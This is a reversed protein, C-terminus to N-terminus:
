TKWSDIVVRKDEKIAEIATDFDPYIKTLCGLVWGSIESVDLGPEIVAYVPMCLNRWAHTIEGITGGTMGRTIYVLVSELEDIASMDYEIIDQMVTLFLPLETKKLSLFEKHSSLNYRELLGHENSAPNFVSIGADKLKISVEDRWGVGSDTAYEMAGALYVTYKEDQM